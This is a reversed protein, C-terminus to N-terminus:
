EEPYKIVVDPYDVPFFLEFFFKGLVSGMYIFQPAEMDNGKEFMTAFEYIRDYM